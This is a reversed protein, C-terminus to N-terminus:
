VHARGIEWDGGFESKFPLEAVCEVLHDYRRRYAILDRITGIKLNHLQAFAVLDDMRAMTGDDKMIECIVGSPNLGALWTVDVAVETHWTRVLVGGDRGVLPFVHGPTVIDDKVCGAEIAVAIRLAREGASLGTFIPLAFTHVGDGILCSM